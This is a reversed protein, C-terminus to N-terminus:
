RGYKENARIFASFDKRAWDIFGDKELSAM